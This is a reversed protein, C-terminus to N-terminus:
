EMVRRVDAKTKRLGLLHVLSIVDLSAVEEKKVMKKETFEFNADLEALSMKFLLDSDLSFFSQTNGLAQKLANEGHVLIVVETALQKQAHRKETDKLHENM